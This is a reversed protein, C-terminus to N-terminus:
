KAKPFTIKLKFLDGDVNIELNGGQLLTLSKAISLGLGSGETNRAKDGRTFRETIEEPTFNMEYASINKFTFSVDKEDEKVSIYVRSNDMSYKLINTMINEFIRYTRRGDLNCLVKHDPATIKMQLSSNNIKEELEGLTQRFLAVVDLKDLQLDLNGSTAKSAEFLDEILIKLRKSKRDLIDIYEKRTEETIDEGRLLDVYTIISTLPTKLDHSVNSILETKMKESTIEKDIALKFGNKINNLNSAIPSLLGINKEVVVDFNGQALEKSGQNLAKIRNISNQLYRFLFVTYIIALIVGFFSTAAIIWLVFLNIILILILKGDEKENINLSFIRKFLNSFKRLIYLAISGFISNKIFGKIFGEHYIYKIYVITLYIILYISFTIPLGILYFYANGSYIINVLDLAGNVDYYQGMASVSAVFLGGLAFWLLAKFEMYMKNYFNCLNVQKQYSYPIALAVIMLIISSVAGISIILLLSPELSFQKMNYIFYDDYSTFNNPVIYIAELNAINNGKNNILGLNSLFMSKNFEVNSSTEVSPSGTNDTKLYLYFISDAKLKALTEESPNSINTKAEPNGNSKVAYKISQVADFRQDYWMAAEPREMYNTFEGLFSAFNHSELYAKTNDGHMLFTNKIPEYSLVSIITLLLVFVLTGFNTKFFRIKAKKEDYAKEITQFVRKNEKDEATDKQFVETDQSEKNNKM